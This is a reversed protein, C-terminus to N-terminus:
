TVRRTTPPSRDHDVPLGAALWAPWGGAIEAAGRHGTLKSRNAHQCLYVVEAGGPLLVHRLLSVRAAGPPWGHRRRESATRLDLIRVEGREAARWAETALVSRTM